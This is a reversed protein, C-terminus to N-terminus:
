LGGGLRVRDPVGGATNGNCCFLAVRSIFRKRIVILAKSAYYGLLKTGMM